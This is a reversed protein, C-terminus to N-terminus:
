SINQPAETLLNNVVKVSAELVRRETKIISIFTFDNTVLIRDLKRQHHLPPSTEAENLSLVLASFAKTDDLTQQLM